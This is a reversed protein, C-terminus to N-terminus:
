DTVQTLLGLDFADVRAPVEWRALDHQLQHLLELRAIEESHEAGPHRVVFQAYEIAAEAVVKPHEDRGHIVVGYSEVNVCSSADHSDRVAVILGQMDSRVVPRVFRPMGWLQRVSNLADIRKRKWEHASTDVGSREAGGEILSLLIQDRIDYWPTTPLNTYQSPPNYRAHPM